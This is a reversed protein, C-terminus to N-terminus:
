KANVTTESNVYYRVEGCGTYGRTVHVLDYM